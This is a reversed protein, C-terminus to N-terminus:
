KEYIMIEIGYGNTEIEFDPAYVCEDLYVGDAYRKLKSGNELEPIKAKCKVTNETINMFIFAKKNRYSFAATEVINDTVFQIDQGRDYRFEGTIPVNLTFYPMKVTGADTKPERLMEGYMIYEWLLASTIKAAKKFYDLVTRNVNEKKGYYMGSAPIVGQCISKAVSRVWYGTEPLACDSTCELYSGVCPNYVYNFLPVTSAGAPMGTYWHGFFENGAARHDFLHVMHMFPESICESSLALDSGREKLGERLNDIIKLYERSWWQGWGRPHGHETAYCDLPGVVPWNDLQVMKCGLQELEYLMDATLKAIGDGSPCLSASKWGYNAWNNIVIEDNKDRIIFHEAQEHLEKTSNFHESYPIDIYWMGFPIYVCGFNGKESMMRMAKEFAGGERPPFLGVPGTWAGAGEFNFVIGIMPTESKEAVENVYGAIDEMKNWIKTNDPTGYNAMQFVAFGKRMWDPLPRTEMPHRAWEQKRAWKKYIDTGDHWDGHFIGVVTDYRITDGRQPRHHMSFAPYHSSNALISIEKVCGESDYAAMYLGATDNYCLAFQMGLNGPYRLCIGGLGEMYREPGTGAKVPLGDITPFPDTYLYGEGLFPTVIRDRVTDGPIFLGPIIPCAFYDANWGEACDIEFSWHSMNDGEPLAVSVKVSYLQESDFEFGCILKNNEIQFKVTKADYASYNKETKFDGSVATIKFLPERVDSARIFEYETTKDRFSLIGGNQKDFTLAALENELKVTDM